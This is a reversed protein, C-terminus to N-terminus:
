LEYYEWIKQRTTIEINLENAKDILYKLRDFSFDDAWTHAFQIALCKNKKVESLIKDIEPENYYCIYNASNLNYINEFPFKNFGPNKLNRKDNVYGNYARASKYYKSLVKITNEDYVTYPYTFHNIKIGTENEFDKVGFYLEKELQSDTLHIKTGKEIDGTLPPEIQFYQGDNDTGHSIIKYIENGICVENEDQFTHTFWGYIRDSGSKHVKQVSVTEMRTHSFGHNVVEWNGNNVMDKIKETSLAHRRLNIGIEAPVVPSYLKHIEYAKWDQAPCDDYSIVLFPKIKIFKLTKGGGNIEKTTKDETLHCSSNKGNISFVVDDSFCYVTVEDSKKTIHSIGSIEKINISDFKESNDDNSCSLCCVMFFIVFLRFILKKM